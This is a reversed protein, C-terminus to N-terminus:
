DNKMRNKWKLLSALFPLSEGDSNSYANYILDYVLPDAKSLFLYHYVQLFYANGNGKGAVDASCLFESKGLINHTLTNAFRKLDVADFGIGMTYGAEVFSVTLAAHSVDEPGSFPKLFQMNESISDSQTWGTTTVPEYWYDWIYANNGPDYQLRNKFFRIMKSSREVYEVRGTLRFLSLETSVHKALFNFPLGVNDWPFSEGKESCLYYGEDKNPGNRWLRAAADKYTEEAAIIFDSAVPLLDSLADTKKVIEAFRMLPEYIIGAYGMFAIPVPTLTIELATDLISGPYIKTTRLLHSKEFYKGPRANIPAMPDNVIKEIYRQDSPDLSLDDFIETRNKRDNFVEMNFRGYSAPRIRVQTSNNYDFTTSRLCVVQRGKKDTLCGVAVVFDGNTTWGPRSVGSGDKIGRRDDRYSLLRKGRFAVEELYKRNQTAEFLDVLAQLTYSEGWALTAADPTKKWSDEKFFNSYLEDAREINVKGSGPFSDIGVVPKRYVPMSVVQLCCCFLLFILLTFLLLVTVERIGPLKRRYMYIM